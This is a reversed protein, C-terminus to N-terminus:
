KLENIMKRITKLLAPIKRNCTFYVAQPNIDVYHHTIIDRMGKAKKWNVQPYRVLLESNTIKDLNKLSEGIVILMMCIADMKTAGEASDVFDSPSQIDSFRSLIKASAKEIHTLVEIILQTNDSM